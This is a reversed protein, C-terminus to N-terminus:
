PKESENLGLNIKDIDLVRALKLLTELTINAKGREVNSVLGQDVNARLALDNQTWEKMLRASRIQGGILKFNMSHSEEFNKMKTPVLVQYISDWWYLLTLNRGLRKWRRRISPWKEIFIDKPLLKFLEAPKDCLYMIDIAKRYFRPHEPVKLIKVTDELAKDNLSWFYKSALKKVTNM